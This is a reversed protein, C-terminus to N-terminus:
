VSDLWQKATLTNPHQGGLQNKFLTYAQQFMERAKQQEGTAAYVAGLNIQRVAVNPHLPGFNKVASELAAELLDRAKEYQGLNRYVNALNSQRVAVNPHLPDFNKLDSDLAAELWDRAKEYQGSNRHVVGLNNMLQSVSEHGHEADPLIALLQEAFTIWQFLLTFNTSVDFDLKRTFAAVMGGLESLGPKLQYLVAQRIMRHLSFRHDAHRTLWGKRDLRALAEHLARRAAATEATADQFGWDELQAAAYANGPPLAAFRALLLREDADLGACDFTTLLHLYIETEADSHNSRIRRQLDADALERRRLKATLDSLSLSGFHHGLTKALLEVTLTHYDVETLLAELDADTCPGDYHKRFLAAAHEPSLRDLRMLEYGSLKERSTILVKWHPPSPLLARIAASELEAGANDVVLLNRGQLRRLGLMVAQFRAMPPEKEGLELGLSDILQPHYAVTEVFSSGSRDEDASLEIWAFHDFGAIAAQFWTKALTTKGIGGLGNVVVVRPSRLLADALARLDADRGICEEAPDIPAYSSLQQPIPRTNQGIAALVDDRLRDINVNTMASLEILIEELVAQQNDESVPRGALRSKLKEIAPKLSDYAANGAVGSAISEAFAQSGLYKLLAELIPNM